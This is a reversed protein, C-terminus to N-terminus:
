RIHSKATISVPMGSWTPQRLRQRMGALGLDAAHAKDRAMVTIPLKRGKVNYVLTFGILNLTETRADLTNNANTNSM